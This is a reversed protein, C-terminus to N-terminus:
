PELSRGTGRGQMARLESGIAKRESNSSRCISAVAADVNSGLGLLCTTVQLGLNM